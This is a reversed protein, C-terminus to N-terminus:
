DVDCSLAGEHAAVNRLTRVLSIRFMDGHGAGACQAFGVDQGSARLREALDRAANPPVSTRMPNVRPPRGPRPGMENTGVMISIHRPPGQRHAAFAQATRLGSGYNWWLAPDAAAFSQFGSHRLTAAYVVFLGGYSHGWLTQRHRDVRVLRAVQPRISKRLLHLFDAAGGGPRNQDDTVDPKSPDPPTYDYARAKVDFRPQGVYGITVLVPPDGGADLRKLLDESLAEIAAGGDLMYVAPYGRLPAPRKPIGVEIDYHRKGDQSPVTFHEFRYVASGAEVVTPGTQATLRPQAGAACAALAAAIGLSAILYKSTRM